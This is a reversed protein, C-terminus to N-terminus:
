AAPPAVPHLLRQAMAAIEESSGRRAVSQTLVFDVLTDATDLPDAGALLQGLPHLLPTTLPVEARIDGDGATDGLRAAAALRESMLARAPEPDTAARDALEALVAQVVAAPGGTAASAAAALADVHVVFTHAAVARVGGFANAVTQASVGSRDAVESATVEEWGDAFMGVTAAVIRARTGARRRAGSRAQPSAETRLTLNHTLSGAVDALRRDSGVPKTLTAVLVGVMDAFLDDDVADPDVAHRIALGYFLATLGASLRQVTFPEVFTRGVADLLQSWILAGGEERVRIRHGIVEGVTGFQGTPEALPRHNSAWALMEHRLNATRGQLAVHGRWQGQMTRHMLDVVDVTEGEPVDFMDRVREAQVRDEVSMSLALADAFSAASPFHHFFSGTTVGAAAAVSATTFGGLARELPLGDIVKWGATVLDDARTSRQKDSTGM